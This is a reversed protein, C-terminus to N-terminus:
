IKKTITALDLFTNQLITVIPVFIVFHAFYIATCVQGLLIFPETAHSSGILGLMLFNCVFVTFFAMNIPNLTKNGRTRSLDTLPLIILILLSGFM